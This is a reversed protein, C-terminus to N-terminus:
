LNLFSYVMVEHLYFLSEVLFISAIFRSVLSMSSTQPIFIFYVKRTLFAFSSMPIILNEGLKLRSCREVRVKKGLKLM